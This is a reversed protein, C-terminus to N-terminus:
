LTAVWNTQVACVATTHPMSLLPLRVQTHASFAAKEKKSGLGGSKVKSEDAKPNRSSKAKRVSQNFSFM